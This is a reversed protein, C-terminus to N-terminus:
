TYISISTATLPHILSDTHGGGGGGGGPFVFSTLSAVSSYIVWILSGHLGVVFLKERVERVKKLTKNFQSMEKQQHAIAMLEDAGNRGLSLSLSLRQNVYNELEQYLKATGRRQIYEQLKDSTKLRQGHGPQPRREDLSHM